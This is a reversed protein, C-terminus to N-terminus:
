VLQNIGKKSSSGIEENKTQMEVEDVISAIRSLLKNYAQQTEEM